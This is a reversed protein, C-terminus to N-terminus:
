MGETLFDFVVDKLKHNDEKDIYQDSFMAGSGVVALKGNSGPHTYFACVPRNLPFSVSGTSLVATAPKAVNLTAGYPYVFSLAQANHGSDDTLGSFNYVFLQNTNGVNATFNVRLDNQFLYSVNRSIM